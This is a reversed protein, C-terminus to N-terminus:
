SLSYTHIFCFEYWCGESGGAELTRESVNYGWKANCKRKTKEHYSKILSAMFFFHKLGTFSHDLFLFLRAVFSCKSHLYFRELISRSILILILPVIESRLILIFAHPLICLPCVFAPFLFKFIWTQITNTCVGGYTVSHTLICHTIRKYLIM